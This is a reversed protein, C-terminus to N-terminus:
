ALLIPPNYAFNVATDSHALGIRQVIHGSTAPPVNTGQGPVADSLYVVGPAQDAVQSNTSDFYVTAPVGSAYGALVFGHAERGNSADALRVRFSGGGGDHINVYDGAAVAESTQIVAVDAGFAAPIVADDLKGAPNLKLTKNAGTTAANLVTDALVGAANLGPIKGADSAGASEVLAEVEEARGNGNKLYKAAM